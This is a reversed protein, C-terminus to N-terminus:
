PFLTRDTYEKVLAEIRPQRPNLQLSKRWQEVAALRKKEDLMAGARYQAIYAEGMGNLALYSGANAALARDFQAMADDIRGGLLLAQGYRQRVVADDRSRLIQEYTAIADAYRKQAALNGALNIATEIRSSDLELALRYHREAEPLLGNAQLVVALNAQVDASDPDSDASKQSYPLAKEPQGLATYVLGLNMNSKADVPNLDIAQLYSQAAEQLRALLHYMLALNYHNLYSYPDLEVVRKYQEAAPEYKGEDRYIDGLLFRAMILDPNEGLADLLAIVARDRDGEQYALAGEVYSNAALRETPQQVDAFPRCGALVLCVLLCLSLLTRVFHSYLTAPPCHLRTQFVICVASHLIRTTSEAKRM